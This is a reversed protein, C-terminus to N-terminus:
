QEKKPAAAPLLAHIADLIAPVDLIPLVLHHTRVFEGGRGKLEPGSQRTLIADAAVRLQGEIAAFALAVAAGAAVVLCRPTPSGSPDGSMGLLTELSHVPVIAGRFGAIGLLSAGGAPVRTIKKDLFLGAIESLRIACGQAGVRIALLSETAATDLRVPEAFTCDFDLRMGAARGTVSSPNNSSPESM